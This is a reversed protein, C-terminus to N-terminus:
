FIRDRGHVRLEPRQYRALPVLNLSRLCRALLLAHLERHDRNRYRDHTQREQEYQRASPLLLASMCVGITAIVIAIIM